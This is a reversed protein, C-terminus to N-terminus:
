ENVRNLDPQDCCFGSLVAISASCFIGPPLIVVWSLEALRGM